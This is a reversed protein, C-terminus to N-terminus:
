AKHLLAVRFAEIQYKKLTEPLEVSENKLQAKIAQSSVLEVEVTEFSQILGEMKFSDAGGAFKGKKMRKKLYVREVNYENFFTEVASRFSIVDNRHDGDGLSIKKVPCDIYNLSEEEAHFLVIITDSGKLDFGCIYM